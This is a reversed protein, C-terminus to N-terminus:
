TTKYYDLDIFLGCKSFHESEFNLHKEIENEHMPDCRFHVEFQGEDLDVALQVDKEKGGLLKKAKDTYFAEFLLKSIEDFKNNTPIFIKIKKRVGLRTPAPIKYHGNEKLAKWFASAKDPFYNKTNPNYM